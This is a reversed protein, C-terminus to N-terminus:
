AQVIKEKFYEELLAHLVNLEIPKSLYGDMGSAMYMAKDGTLANATLAVIPVHIEKLSKEYNLIKGTAEMGGMIPMEIDMFIMDFYKEKRMELAQAGDSVMTVEIGMQTLVSEILRQNIENDEAVLIHLNEFMLKRSEELSEEKNTLINLIKTFNVPKYLIRDIKSRYRQISRKQDRTTMLVIRTDFDLFKQLEEGRHRFKHDIFLIDPLASTDKLALLAKDSYHTVEAGSFSVYAELNENKYYHYGIHPNLIGVTLASLDEVVRLTDGEAKKIHLTFFFDSGEDKQSRIKLEGGMLNVIKGSISLGLGTGGYKRSTSIDAQSFAEFIKKRQEATLGIGTDAVSFKIKAESQTESIKEIRVNVEGNKSTFKIANSVLNVLVQSIKTPDGILKTPLTPDLFINFDINEEAAKAAYSEITSEFSEIPDFIIKEFEIKEAKIKSLDLIDNVISLLNASSKEIIEIYERQETKDDSKKLLQTFGLVGNLPTRIEHSMNALFLDKTQNADKIAQILFKYINDVKGERILRQIKKQQQADFVLGIEQLTEESIQRNQAMLIYMKLLKFLFFLLLLTMASLALVYFLSQNIEEEEQTHINATLLSLVTSFYEMKEKVKNLWGDITVSYHGRDAEALIMERQRLLINKYQEVSLLEGLQLALASNALMHLNPLFDKKLLAKWMTIEASSMATSSALKYVIYSSELVSNEQVDMYKRYILLDNKKLKDTETLFLEKVIDSLQTYVTHHYGNFLIKRFSPSQVLLLDRVEEVSKKSEYLAKEYRSFGISEKFFHEVQLYKIDVRKQTDKLVNLDGPDRKALYVASNIREHNLADILGEMEQLFSSLMEQKVVNKYHTYSFYAAYSAFLFLLTIAMFSLTLVLKNKLVNM